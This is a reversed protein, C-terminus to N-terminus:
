TGPIQKGHPDVDPSATRDALAKQLDADTVHELREASPHIKDLPKGVIQHLYIEWLRHSRVLSQAQERGAETLAPGDAILGRRTLSRLAFKVTWLRTGGARM